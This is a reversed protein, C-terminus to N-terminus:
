TFVSKVMKCGLVHSIILEVSQKSEPIDAANMVKTWKKLVQGVSGSESCFSPGIQQGHALWSDSSFKNYDPSLFRALPHLFSKNASYVHRFTKLLPMTISRFVSSNKFYGNSRCPCGCACYMMIACYPVYSPPLNYITDDSCPEKSIVDDDQKEKIKFVAIGYLAM